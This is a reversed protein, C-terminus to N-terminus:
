RKGAKFWKPVKQGDSKTNEQSSSPSNSVARKVSSCSSASRLSSPLHSSVVKQADGEDACFMVSAASLYQDRQEQCGFHVVSLPTLEAEFLTMAKDKLERRPPTTYLYFELNNDELQEKVFKYLKFVTERPKFVGQLVHRDPFHVRIVARPYRDIKADKEAARMSATMLPAESDKQQAVIESYLRSFDDKTLDFFDDSPEEMPQPASNRNSTDINYIVTERECAIYDEKSVDSFENQYLDQGRTAEPFKFPVPAPPPQYVHSQSPRDHSPGAARSAGPSFHMGPLLKSLMRQEQVENSNRSPQQFSAGTGASTSPQQFSSGTGASTSPQQFSSGTGTSTSPEAEMASPQEFQEFLRQSSLSSSSSDCPMAPPARSAEASTSVINHEPEQSSSMDVDMDQVSSECQMSDSKGTTSASNTSHMPTPQDNVPNDRTTSQQQSSDFKPAKSSLRAQRQTEDDIKKRIDELMSDDVQRHLIRIVAKGGLLGLTKLTIKKLAYEGVVEERMYICVPHQGDGTGTLFSRYELGKENLWYILIDWLSTTPVFDHVLREGTSIQLALTVDADLRTKPARVLELKARNALGSFRMILTLDLSKKQNAQRLEYDSPPQFGKKLCVEELIQVIKTNPTTKVTARHGNPCLVDVSSM